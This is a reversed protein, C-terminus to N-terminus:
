QRDSKCKCPIFDDSNISVISSYCFNTNRELAYILKKTAIDDYDKMCKTCNYLSHNYVLITNGCVCENIINAIVNPHNNPDAFKTNCMICDEPLVYVDNYDKENKLTMMHCNDCLLKVYDEDTIDM